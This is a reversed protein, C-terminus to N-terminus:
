GLQEVVAQRPRPGSGSGALARRVASRSGARRGAPPRASRQMGSTNPDETDDLSADGSGALADSLRDRDAAAWAAMAALPEFFDRGRDSLEYLVAPPLERLVTRTILGASVMRQLTLTLVKQHTGGGLRRRLQARRLSQEGLLELIPLVWKGTAVDVALQADAVRYAPRTGDSGSAGAGGEM